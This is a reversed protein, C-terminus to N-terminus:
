EGLLYSWEAPDDWQPSCRENYTRNREIKDQASQPLPIGFGEPNPRCEGVDRPPRMGDFEFSPCNLMEAIRALSLLEPEAFLMPFGPCVPKQVLSSKHKGSWVPVTRFYERFVPKNEYPYLSIMGTDIIRGDPFASATFPKIKQRATWRIADMSINMDVKTVVRPSPRAQQRDGKPRDSRPLLKQRIRDEKAKIKARLLGLYAEEIVLDSKGLNCRSCAPILNCLEDKGGKSKPYLHDIHEATAGCYACKNDWATFLASRFRPTIIM